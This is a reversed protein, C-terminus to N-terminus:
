VVKLLRSVSDQFYKLHGYRVLQYGYPAEGDHVDRVEYSILADGHNLDDDLLHFRYLGHHLRLGDSVPFLFGHLFVFLLNLWDSEDNM